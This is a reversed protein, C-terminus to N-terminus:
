RNDSSGVVHCVTHLYVSMSCCAHINQLLCSTAGIGARMWTSTCPAPRPSGMLLPSKRFTEGRHRTCAPAYADCKLTSLTRSAPHVSSFGSAPTALDPQQPLLYTRRLTQFGQFTCVTVLRPSASSLSFSLPLQGGHSHRRATDTFSWCHVRRMCHRRGSAIPPGCCTSLIHWEAAPSRAGSAHRGGLRCRHRLNPTRSTEVNLSHWLSRTCSQASELSMPRQMLTASPHSRLLTSPRTHARLFALPNWPCPHLSRPHRGHESHLQADCCNSV